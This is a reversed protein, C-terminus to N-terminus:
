NLGASKECGSVPRRDKKNSLSRAKGVSGESKVEKLINKMSGFEIHLSHIAFESDM